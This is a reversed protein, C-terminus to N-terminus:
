LLIVVVLSGAFVYQTGSVTVCDGSIDYSRREFQIIGAVRFLVFPIMNATAYEAATYRSLFM